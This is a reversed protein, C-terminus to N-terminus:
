TVGFRAMGFDQHSSDRGPKIYDAVNTVVTSTTTTTTGAIITDNVTTFTSLGQELKTAIKDASDRGFVFNWSFDAMLGIHCTVRYELGIGLQGIGRVYNDYVP